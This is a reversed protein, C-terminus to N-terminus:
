PLIRHQYNHGLYKIVNDVQQKTLAWPRGVQNRGPHHASNSNNIDRVTSESIKTIKHIAFPKLNCDNALTLVRARQPMPWEEREPPQSSEEM